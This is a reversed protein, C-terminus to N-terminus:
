LPIKVHFETGVNKQSFVKIEGDHAQVIWKAIALGLGSGGEARARSKDSRYFRDFVYPLDKAEIGIGTDRVILTMSHHHKKLSIHISEGSPTYKFANDLLIMCLQHLREQDGGCM